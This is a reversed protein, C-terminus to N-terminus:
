RHGHGNRKTTDAIRWGIRPDSVAIPRYRGNQRAITAVHPSEDMARQVAARWTLHETAEIERALDVLELVDDVTRIIIV